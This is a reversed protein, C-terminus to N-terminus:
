PATGRLTMTLGLSEALAEVAQKGITEIESSFPPPQTVIWPVAGPFSPCNRGLEVEFLRHLSDGSLDDAGLATLGSIEDHLAAWTTQMAAIDAELQQGLKTMSAARARAAQVRSRLEKQAITLLRSNEIEELRQAEARIGDALAEAALIAAEAEALKQRQEALDLFAQSRFQGDPAVPM